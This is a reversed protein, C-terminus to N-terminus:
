WVGSPDKDFRKASIGLVIWVVDVYVMMLNSQCIGPGKNCVQLKSTRSM